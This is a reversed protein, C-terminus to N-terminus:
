YKRAMNLILSDLIQYKYLNIQYTRSLPYIVCLLCCIFDYYIAVQHELHMCLYSLVFSSLIFSFAFFSLIWLKSITKHITLLFWCYYHSSDCLDKIKSKLAYDVLFSLSFHMMYRFLLETRKSIYLYLNFWHNKVVIKTYVNCFFEGYKLMQKTIKDRIRWRSYTM